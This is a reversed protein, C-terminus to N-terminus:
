GAQEERAKMEEKSPNTTMDKLLTLVGNQLDSANFEPPRTAVVNGTEDRQIGEQLKSELYQWTAQVITDNIMNNFQEPPPLIKDIMNRFMPGWTKTIARLLHYVAFPNNAIIPEARFMQYWAIIERKANMKDFDFNMAQCQINTRAILVDRSIDKFVSQGTVQKDTKLKYKRGTKSIQYYISLIMYCIQNFGGIFSRLYGRINKDTQNLLALTKRAPADPDVPDAKGQTYSSQGSVDDNNRAIDHKLALLGMIDPSKIFNNLFEINAPNGEIPLGHVFANNNFQKVIDDDNTIPTINNAIYAGELTYNTLADEAINNDYLDIGMCNPTFFEDDEETIRFPVYETGIGFYDYSFCGVIIEKEEEIYCIVKIEDKNGDPKFMRVCRIINWNENEYNKKQDEPKDKDEAILKDLNYFEDEDEKIKLERYSFEEREFTHERKLENYGCVGNRVYFNKPDVSKIM